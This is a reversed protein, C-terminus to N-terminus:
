PQEQQARMQAVHANAYGEAMAWTIAASAGWGCSCSALLQGAHRTYGVLAYRTQHGPCSPGPPMRAHLM